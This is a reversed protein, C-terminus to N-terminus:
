RGETAGPTNLIIDIEYRQKGVLFRGNRTPTIYLEPWVRYQKGQFLILPRSERRTNIEGELEFHEPGHITGYERYLESELFPIKLSGDTLGVLSRPLNYGEPIWDDLRERTHYMMAEVVSFYDELSFVREKRTKEDLSHFPNEASFLFHGHFFDDESLESAYGKEFITEVHKEIIKGLSTPVPIEVASPSSEKCSTLALLGLLGIVKLFSRRLM